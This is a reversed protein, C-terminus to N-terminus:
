RQWAKQAVRRCFIRQGIQITVFYGPLVQQSQHQILVVMLKEKFGFYLHVLLVQLQMIFNELFMCEAKLIQKHRYIQLQQLHQDRETQRVMKSKKQKQIQIVRQFSGGGMLTEYLFFLDRKNGDGSDKSEQEILIGGEYVTDTSISGIAGGIIMGNGKRFNSTSFDDSYKSKSSAEPIFTFGLNISKNINNKGFIIIQNYVASASGSRSKTTTSTSAQVYGRNITDTSTVDGKKLFCVLFVVLVKKIM